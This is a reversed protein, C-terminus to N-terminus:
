SPSHSLQRTLKKTIPKMWSRGQLRIAKQYLFRIGDSGMKERPQNAITGEDDLLKIFTGPFRGLASFELAVDEVLVPSGITGYAQRVKHEVIEHLDLSQVEDLDVKQHRVPFGLYKALYDAKNQNGTIFTINAMHRNYRRHKEKSWESRRVVKAECFIQNERWTDFCLFFTFTQDDGRKKKAGGVPWPIM